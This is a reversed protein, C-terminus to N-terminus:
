SMVAETFREGWADVGLTAKVKSRGDLAAQTAKSPDDLLSRITTVFRRTDQPDPLLYDQLAESQGLLDGAGTPGAVVPTGCAVSEALALGFSEYVSTVLLFDVSRYLSAMDACALRRRHTETKGTGEAGAGLVVWQVEPLSRMVEAAADPGKTPRDFGIFLGTPKSEVLGLRARLEDDRTGPSFAKTDVPCWVVECDYGFFQNVERATRHSNALCLKGRGAMRELTLSDLYRLKMHGRRRIKRRIAEAQGAYTGHYYHVSRHGRIGWGVPGNTIVLDRTPREKAAASARLADATSWWLRKGPLAALRFRDERESGCLYEAAFGGADLTAMIARCCAEVGGPKELPSSGIVMASRTEPCPNQQELEVRDGIGRAIGNEQIKGQM